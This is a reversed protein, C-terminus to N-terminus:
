LFQQRQCQKTFPDFYKDLLFYVFATRFFLYHKQQMSKYKYVTYIDLHPAIRLCLYELLFSSEDDDLHIVFLFFCLFIRIQCTLNQMMM